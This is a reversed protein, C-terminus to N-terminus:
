GDADMVAGALAASHPLIRIDRTFTLQNRTVPCVTEPHPLFSGSETRQLREVNIGSATARLIRGFSPVGRVKFTCIAGVHHAADNM